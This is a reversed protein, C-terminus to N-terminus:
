EHHIKKTKVPHIGFVHAKQLFSSYGSGNKLNGREIKRHGINKRLRDRLRRSIKERRFNGRSVIPNKRGFRYELLDLNDYRPRHYGGTRINATEKPYWDDLFKGTKDPICFERLSREASALSQGQFDEGHRRTEDNPSSSPINTYRGQYRIPNSRHGYKIKM